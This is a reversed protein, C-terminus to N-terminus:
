VIGNTSPFGNEKVRWRLVFNDVRVEQSVMAVAKSLMGRKHAEPLEHASYWAWPDEGVAASSVREFMGLVEQKANYGPLYQKTRPDALHDPVNPDGITNDHLLLVAETAVFELEM